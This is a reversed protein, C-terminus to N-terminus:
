EILNKVIKEPDFEVIDKYEQGVGLFLIPKGITHTASLAAGGREYVDTKNLILADVSVADNFLKSQDYIDNGALADLVLIKLDPKNVRCIKKLEDMLNVNAHSRGATDALVLKSGIAKAHKVADFIVAASDAGYKHKVIEVGLRRGHEELQEISAARFTDGAAIIPKFQSFKKAFKAITTTKGVGNFGLFIILFPEDKNKILEELDIKEQKMVDLMSKRLASKITNEVKGRSVSSGVLSRKVDDCIKEATNLAVDNELLALRLEALIEEVEKETLKKEKVKKFLGSFFGKKEEKKEIIKEPEPIIKEEIEEIKEPKEEIEEEAEEIIEEPKEEIEIEQVIQDLTKPKEEKLVEKEPKIPGPKEKILEEAEEVFEEEKEKFMEKEEEILPEDKQILPKDKPEEKIKEEIEEDIKKSFKNVIGSLKKKLSGFM